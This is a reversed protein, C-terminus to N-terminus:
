LLIIPSPRRIFEREDADVWAKKAPSAEASLKLQFLMVALRML